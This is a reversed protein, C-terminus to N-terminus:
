GSPNLALIEESKNEGKSIDVMQEEHNINGAVLLAKVARCSPSALTWYLKIMKPAQQTGITINEGDKEAACCNTNGM